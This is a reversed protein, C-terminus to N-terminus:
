VEPLKWPARYNPAVLENAANSNTFRNNQDDWKLLPEGVRGAINAMHVHLAANRGM